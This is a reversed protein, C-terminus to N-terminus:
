HTPRDLPIQEFQDVSGPLTDYRAFGHTSEPSSLYVTTVIPSDIWIRWDPHLAATDEVRQNYKSAMALLEDTRYGLKSLVILGYTITAPNLTQAVIGEIEPAAEKGKPELSLIRSVLNPSLEPVSISSPTPYLTM